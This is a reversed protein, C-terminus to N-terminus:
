GREIYSELSLRVLGLITMKKKKTYESVKDFLEDGLLKKWNMFNVEEQEVFLPKDNTVQKNKSEYVTLYKKINKFILILGGL